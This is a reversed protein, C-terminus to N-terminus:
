LYARMVIHLGDWGPIKSKLLQAYELAQATDHKLSGSLNFDPSILHVSVISCPGVIVLVRDDIGSIISAAGHRGRAVTAQSEPSSVVEHKLFAPQLLPEYGVVRRDNLHRQLEEEDMAPTEPVKTRFM